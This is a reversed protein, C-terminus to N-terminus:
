GETTLHSLDVEQLNPFILALPVTATYDFGQHQSCSLDLSTIGTLRSRAGMERLNNPARLRNAGVIKLSTFNGQLRENWGNNAISTFLSEATSGESIVITATRTQDLSEHARAARFRRNCMAATNLDKTPLSSLMLLLCDDNVSDLSAVHRSTGAENTDDLVRRRKASPPPDSDDAAPTKRPAM